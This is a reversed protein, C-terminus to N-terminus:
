VSKSVIGNIIQRMAIAYYQASLLIAPTQRDAGQTYAIDGSRRDCYKSYFKIFSQVTM